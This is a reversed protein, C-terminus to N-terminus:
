HNAVIVFWGFNIQTTPHLPRVVHNKTTNYCQSWPIYHNDSQYHLYIRVKWIQGNSYNALQLLGEIEMTVM